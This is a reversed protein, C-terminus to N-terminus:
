QNKTKVSVLNKALCCLNIQTRLYYALDKIGVLFCRSLLTNKLHLNKMFNRIEIVNNLEVIHNPQISKEVAGQVLHSSNKM